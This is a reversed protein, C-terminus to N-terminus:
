PRNAISYSAHKPGNYKVVIGYYYENCGKHIKYGNYRLESCVGQLCHGLFLEKTLRYVYAYDNCIRRHGSSNSLGGPSSLQSLSKTTFDRRM